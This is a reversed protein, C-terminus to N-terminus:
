LWEEKDLENMAERETLITGGIETVIDSLPAGGKKLDIENLLVRGDTSQKRTSLDCRTLGALKSKEAIIYNM